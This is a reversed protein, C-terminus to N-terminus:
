TSRRTTSWLRSLACIYNISVLRFERFCRVQEIKERFKADDDEQAYLILDGISGLIKSSHNGMKITDTLFPFYKAQVEPHQTFL